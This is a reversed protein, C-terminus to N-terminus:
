LYREKLINAHHRIHGVMIYALARVSVEDDNATGVRQWAERSLNKFFLVNARRLLLLEEVLDSVSASNFDANEIYPDQDYGELPTQDARAIRLARYAFIREGDILHGLLEKVTWKGPAYAHAGKEESIEARLNELVALQDELALLVNTEQVQSVYTEYYEAYESKEPRSNPPM